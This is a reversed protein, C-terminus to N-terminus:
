SAKRHQISDITATMGSAVEAANAEDTDIHLELAYEPHVRVLVDGFILARGDAGVKVRVTDRDRLGYVQADDPHMHIHRLACIVGEKLQVEGVPGVLTLGPSGKVDGSARVPADVGLIYQETRSIEVQSAPRVPGLVRVRSIRGKPGVLEVKEDCAFQGPQSLPKFPTLQHGKGFLVDVDAQSLHVHHASIGLPVHKDRRAQLIETVGSRKLAKVTEAALVVDEETPVVLVPVKGEARSIRRIQRGGGAPETGNAREDLEIGLFGLGQCVRSRISSRTEGICGTFVLLDLGGMAATYAGIYKRVRYCYAHLALLAGPHGSDAARELETLDGSLGSLGLLGSEKNLLRDIGERGYGLDLLHLVLGPDLDGSRTNMMLGELPTLGMSTDVSRGHEIAAVSSGIGLHCTIVKGADAPHGLFTNAARSVYKHSSGHFGFRRLQHRDALERPIAYRYVHEPLTAHFATDFVCVQTIGGPLLRECLEIGLLNLPNHLPALSTLRRLEEKVEDTVVTSETFRVGGHVVRHGVAHIEELRQLSGVEPHLLTDLVVQLAAEHDGAAVTRQLNGRASRHQQLAAGSAIKEIEGEATREGEVFLAYRLASTSLSLMLMPQSGFDRDEGPAGPARLASLLPRTGVEDRQALRTALLSALRQVLRPTTAMERRLDANPIRILRCPAIATVEAISPEGTLLSVEGCLELPGLLVPQRPPTSEPYHLVQIRGSGVVTVNDVVQGPRLIVEGTSYDEEWSTAALRELAAPELDSFIEVSRLVAFREM